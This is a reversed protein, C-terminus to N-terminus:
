KNGKIEFGFFDISGEGRYTFYLSFKDDGKLDIDTEESVAFDKNETLTIIGLVEGKLSSRIEFLGKDGRTMVKLKLHDAKKFYKFGATAGDKMNGIYQGPKEKGDEQEQMFAPHNQRIEDDCIDKYHIAGDRSTLHCAIYSRYLGTNELSGDNLGCSTMKAQDFTGDVKMYLREAIGQRAYSGYNTQRHGFIYYDDKVKVISGHNNGTYSVREAENVLGIDGNDHLIGKYTFPGKPDDAMAYCLEHSNWSSYIFYYRDNFRRISSAEFFDHGADPCDNITIKYPDNKLTCMDDELEIVYAGKQLRTKGFEREVFEWSLDPSFGVYLYIKDDDVIIAPDFPYPDGDRKGILKGEKDKVHGLFEFPGEPRQAVAVGISATACPCYYLYYRGDNGKCADPAFLPSLIEKNLPDQDKRYIMGHCHWDSLDDIPASWLVYDNECFFHSGYKDHSGYVYLRDNFVHPEGDPIYEYDPLYPNFIQKKMENLNRMFLVSRDESRM